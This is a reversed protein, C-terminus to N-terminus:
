ELRYSGILGQPRWLMAAFLIASYTMIQLPGVLHSPLAPLFRVGEGIVIFALAGLISGLWRGSGGLVVMVLIFTSFVIQFAEPDVFRIYGAYLGGAVSAMMATTVFVRLRFFQVNKGISAAVAPNARITTLVRGYPSNVLQRIILIVFVAVPVSLLLFTAPDNLKMGFLIPSPIGPVGFPGKTVSVWNFLVQTMTLQLTTTALIFFHGKLRLIPSVALAAIGAAAIGILMAPYFSIATETTLLGVAYAGIGYFSAHALTLLGTYGVSVNLSTALISYITLLVLLHIVYDM